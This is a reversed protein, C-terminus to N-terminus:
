WGARPSDRGDTHSPVLFPANPVSFGLILDPYPAPYRVGYLNFLLHKICCTKICCTKETVNEIILDVPHLLTEDTTFTINALVTEANPLPDASRLWRQLRIGRQIGGKASALAQDSVDVLIVRLGHEALLQASGMVGAGLVGVMEITM